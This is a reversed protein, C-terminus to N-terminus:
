RFRREREIRQMRREIADDDRGTNVPVARSEIWTSLDGRRVSRDRKKGFAALDGSRIAARVVGLSTAAIEAAARLPVLDAASERPLALVIVITDRSEIVFAGLQKAHRVVDAVTM